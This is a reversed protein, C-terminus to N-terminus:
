RCLGAGLVTVRYTVLRCLPGDVGGQREDVGGQGEDVEERKGLSSTQGTTLQTLGRCGQIHCLGQALEAGLWM